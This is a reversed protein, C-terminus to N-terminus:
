IEIKLKTKPMDLERTEREAMENWKAVIIKTLKGSKHIYISKKSLTDEIFPKQNLTQKHIIHWPYNSIDCMNNCYFVCFFFSYHLFFHHGFGALYLQLSHACCHTSQTKIHKFQHFIAPPLHISIWKLKRPTTLNASMVLGLLFICKTRKLAHMCVHIHLLSFFASNKPHCSARAFSIHQSTAHTCQRRDISNGHIWVYVCVQEHAAGAYNNYEIWNNFLKFFFHIFTHKLYFTIPRDPSHFFFGYECQYKQM